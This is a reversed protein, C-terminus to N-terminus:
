FACSSSMTFPVEPCMYFLRQILLAMAVSLNFSDTFGYMPLYVRRDAEKLMEESVGDGSVV